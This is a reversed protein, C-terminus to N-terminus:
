LWIMDKEDDFWVCGEKGKYNPETAKSLNETTFNHRM